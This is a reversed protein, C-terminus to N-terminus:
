LGEGSGQQKILHDLLLEVQTLEGPGLKIAQRITQLPETVATPDDIPKLKKLLNGVATLHANATGLTLEQPVEGVQAKWNSRARNEVLGDLKEQHPAFAQKNKLGAREGAQEVSQALALQQEPLIRAHQDKILNMKETLARQLPAGRLATKIKQWEALKNEEADAALEDFLPGYQTVQGLWQETRVRKYNPLKARGEGEQQQEIESSREPAGTRPIAGQGAWLEMRDGANTDCAQDDFYLTPMGLLAPGEMAGSRMGIAVAENKERLLDLLYLQNRRDGGNPFDRDSWFRVLHKHGALREPLQPFIEDGALIVSRGGFKTDVLEVLQKVVEANTDLEGHAGGPKLGSTRCWLLVCPGIEGFHKQHYERIGEQDKQLKEKDEQTTGGFWAQRVKAQSGERDKALAEGVKETAVHAEQDWPLRPEDRQEKPLKRDRLAPPKHSEYAAKADGVVKIEIRQPDIGVSTYFKLLWGHAQSEMRGRLEEESYDRNHLRQYLDEIRVNQSRAEKQYAELYYKHDVYIRLQLGPDLILAASIGYMDGTMNAAQGIVDQGAHQRQLHEYLLTAGQADFSYSQVEPREIWRGLAEEVEPTVDKGQEVLWGKVAGLDDPNVPQQEGGLAHQEEGPVGVDHGVQPPQQPEVQGGPPQTPRWAIKRQVARGVDSAGGLTGAPRGAVMADAARDAEHEAADDPSGVELKAQPGGSPGGGGQQVTHAVEHALLHQGSASSPDYRGAGFHIDQGVTFAQASLSEAARASSESTHLRVGGLGTGLSSEFQTRVGDPLPAGSSSAAAEVAREAGRGVGNDGREARRRALKRRILADGLRKPADEGADRTPAANTSSGTSAIPDQAFPAKNTM